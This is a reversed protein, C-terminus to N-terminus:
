CDMHMAAYQFEARHVTRGTILIQLGDQRRRATSPTFHLGKEHGPRRLVGRKGLCLLQAFKEDFTQGADAKCLVHLM